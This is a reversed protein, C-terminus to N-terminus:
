TFCAHEVKKAGGQVIEVAVFAVVVVVIGVLVM